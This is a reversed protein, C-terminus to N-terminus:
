GQRTTINYLRPQSVVKWQRKDARRASIRKRWSPESQKQVEEDYHKANPQQQAAFLPAVWM